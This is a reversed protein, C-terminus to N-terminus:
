APEGKEIRERLLGSPGFTLALKQGTRAEHDRSVETLADRLSGAAYVVVPETVVPPQAACGALVAACVLAVPKM